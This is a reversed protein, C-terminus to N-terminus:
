AARDVLGRLEFLVEDRDCELASSALAIAAEVVVAVGMLIDTVDTGAEVGLPALAEQIFQDAALQQSPAPPNSVSVFDLLASGIRKQSDIM